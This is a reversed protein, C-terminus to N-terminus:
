VVAARLDPSQAVRSRLSQLLEDQQQQGTARCLSGRGKGVPYMQPHAQITRLAMGSRCGTRPRLIIKERGPLHTKAAMRFRLQRDNGSLWRRQYVLEAVRQVQFHAIRRGEQGLGDVGLIVELWGIVDPPVQIGVIWAFGAVATQFFGVLHRMGRQRFHGIAQHAMRVDLIGEGALVAVHLVCGEQFRGIVHFMEQVQVAGSFHVQVLSGARHAVAPREGAHAAM